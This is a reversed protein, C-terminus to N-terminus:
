KPLPPKAPKEDEERDTVVPPFGNLQRWVEYWLPVVDLMVWGNARVGQRLYRDDPWDELKVPRILTRFKGKGDDISDVSVVEGGFTGVAVSPWGAFQVAPWGEFQLRVHRGPEVLPADNGKLWIQVARDKTDPVITCIPDGEKLVGTGFNPTIQVVFGDFPAMVTQNAQRSVDSELKYVDAQAKAMEQTVKAVETKAKEMDATAKRVAAKAYDIDVQAKAIKAVRESMKAELEKSAAAIDTRAKEVKARQASLKAQVEQVKQLAINGENYLTEMRSAEAELQPIHSAYETLQNELGRVKERAQEVYADQAAITEAKVETYAIVQEEFSEVVTHAADLARNSANLQDQASQVRERGRELQQQLRMAYQEDLDQIEAIVQGEVVRANEHIDEGWRIIRGKIPAEIVQQREGPAFAVVSGSGKISQQWPAFAMVFITTVLGIFLITAVRRFLRSSRVLRLAPMDVENYAVPALVRRPQSVIKPANQFETKGM